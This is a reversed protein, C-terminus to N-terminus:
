TALGREIRRIRNGGEMNTYDGIIQAFTKGDIQLIIPQNQQMYNQTPENEQVYPNNFTAKKTLDFSLVEDMARAIKNEGKLIGAGITEGWKVEMIDTLPGEKPPSFPLFNRIKQAIGKMASTVKGIASKIGDAISTVINIGAQKFEGFFNKVANYASTMGSSVASRVRNFAGSVISSLSNFVGSITSKIGNVVSSIIGRIGNMVSNVINGIFNFGTSVVNRVTSIGSSFVSKVTNWINTVIGRLGTFLSTGLKLIKGVFWLNILNWILQVAGSVIQKVSEWLASWNGTFFAAFFEVIGTIVDIAGQIAGKIAEWTSIVLAQIIPWLAQMIGWIVNMVTTIVTSIVNWVNQAAQLIMQGNEQWWSVLQGWVQMVFDSVAQIVSSITEKIKSWVTQVLDRFGENKKYLAVFLAVLGAIAGVILGIPGLLTAMVGGLKAMAGSAVVEGAKAAMFGGKMATLGKTLTSITGIIKSIVMLVPGIAVAIGAITMILNKTSGDLNTWWQIANKINEVIKTFAEGFKVGLDAAKDSFSDIYGIAESFLPKITSFFGGGKGGADLFQAGIRGIAAFVNNFGAVFSEEGMTKAAGGINKEIANLFMESSIKGESAMKKVEAATVGAQDALWQYIPIGRDALQNLNDTYAVQSTQVQNIISGMEAMSVGAIAAADGTLTLYRTLEKGPKIGAAVASAATTAAEDMGFATGKVSELASNMIKEVTKADHGLGKLKAQATDIGVLRKFGLTSIIGSVATAAGLAPVTIAKTLTKGVNGMSKSIEKALTEGAKKGATSVEPDLVKQISGSIGKASPMIQVYAQGLETAM